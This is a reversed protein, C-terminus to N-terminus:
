QIEQKGSIYLGAGGTVVLIALTSLTFRAIYGNYAKFDCTLGSDVYAGDYHLVCVKVPDGPKYLCPNVGSVYYIKNERFTENHGDVQLQVKIYDVVGEEWENAFQRCTSTTVTGQAKTFQYKPHEMVLDYTIYGLLALGTVIIAIWFSKHM